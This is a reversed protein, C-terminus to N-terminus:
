KKGAKTDNFLTFVENSTLARGNWVAARDMYGNWFLINESFSGFRFPFNQNGAFTIANTITNASASAIQIGDRYLKFASSQTRDLVM